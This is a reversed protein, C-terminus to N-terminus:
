RNFRMQGSHSGHSERQVVVFKFLLSCTLSFVSHHTCVYCVTGGASHYNSLEIFKDVIFEPSELGMCDNVVERVSRIPISYYKTREPGSDPLGDYVKDFSIQFSEETGREEMIRSLWRQDVFYNRSSSRGLMKLDHGTKPKFEVQSKNMERQTTCLTVNNIMETRDFTSNLMKDTKFPNSVTAPRTYYGHSGSWSLFKDEDESVEGVKKTLPLRNFSM